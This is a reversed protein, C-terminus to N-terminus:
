VKTIYSDEKYPKICEYIKVDWIKFDSESRSVMFDNGLLNLDINFKGCSCRSEKYM